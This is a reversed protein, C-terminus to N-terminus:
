PIKQWRVDTLIIRNWNIDDSIMQHRRIDYSTMHHWRIDDSTMYSQYWRNCDAAKKDSIVTGRNWGWADLASSQHKPGLTPGLSSQFKLTYFVLWAWAERERDGWTHWTDAPPPPWWTPSPPSCPLPWYMEMVFDYIVLKDVQDRARCLQRYVEVPCAPDRARLLRRCVRDHEWEDHKPASWDWTTQEIKSIVPQQKSVWAMSM